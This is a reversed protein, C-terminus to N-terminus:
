AVPTYALSLGLKDRQLWRYLLLLAVVALGTFLGIWIGSGELGFDSPSCPASRCIGWGIAAYIMPVTTDQLGRLM